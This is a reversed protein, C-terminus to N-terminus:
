GGTQGEDSARLTHLEDFGEELVPPVLRRASAFIAVKPVRTRGTRQENRGVAERTSAEIYYGVVRADFERAIAIVAAREAPSVNTNDVIVSRGEALSRRLAADQRAQQNGAGPWADKSIHEHSPYRDRAFTTKGAGPLGVLIICEPRATVV